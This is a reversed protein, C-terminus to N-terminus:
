LVIIFVVVSIGVIFSLGVCGKLCFMKFVGCRGNWWVLEYIVDVVIVCFVFLIRCM